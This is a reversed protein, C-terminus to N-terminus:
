YQYCYQTNHTFNNNWEDNRTFRRTFPLHGALRQPVEIYMYIYMYMCTCTAQRIGCAAMTRIMFIRLVDFCWCSNDSTRVWSEDLNLGRTGTMLTGTFSMCGGYWTWYRQEFIIHTDKTQGRRYQKKVINTYYCNQLVKMWISHKFGWLDRTYATQMEFRHWCIHTHAEMESIYLYELLSPINPALPRDSLCRCSGPRTSKWCWM